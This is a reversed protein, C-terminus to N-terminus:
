NNLWRRCATAFDEPYHGNIFRFQTESLAGPSYPIKPMLSYILPQQSTRAQFRKGFEISTVMRAGLNALAKQATLLATDLAARYLHDTELINGPWSGSADPKTMIQLEWQSVQAKPVFLLVCDDEWIVLNTELDQRDDMRQNSYLAKLYDEFLLTGHHAQYQSMAEHIMDGASFPHTNSEPIPRGNVYSSFESPVMAYQQHIQQHSAHLRYGTPSFDFGFNWGWLTAGFPLSNLGPHEIIQQRLSELGTADLSDPAYHIDLEDALRVYSRQYYLQRLGTMDTLDLRDIDYRIADDAMNAAYHGGGIYSNRRLYEYVHTSGEHFDGVIESGGQAGPRIVMAVKYNDPLFPNNAVAEFLDHDSIDPRYLNEGSKKFQLEIRGGPDAGAFTASLRALHALEGPDTSSTAISLLVPRPLRGLLES